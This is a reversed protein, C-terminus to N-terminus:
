VLLHPMTPIVKTKPTSASFTNKKAWNLLLLHLKGIQANFLEVGSGLNLVHRFRKMWNLSTATLLLPPLPTHPESPATTLTKSQLRVNYKSAM